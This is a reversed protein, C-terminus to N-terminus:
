VTLEQTPKREWPDFEDVGAVDSALTGLTLGVGQNLASGLVANPWKISEPFSSQAPRYSFERECKQRNQFGDEPNGFGTQSVKSVRNQVRQGLKLQARQNSGFEWSGTQV